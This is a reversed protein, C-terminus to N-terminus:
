PKGKMYQSWLKSANNVSEIWKASMHAPCRTLRISNGRNVAFLWVGPHCDRCVVM